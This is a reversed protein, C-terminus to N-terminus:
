RPGQWMGVVTRRAPTARRGRNGRPRKRGRSGEQRRKRQAEAKDQQAKGERYLDDQGLVAGGVGNAKGKVGEVVRQIAEEPGTNNEGM